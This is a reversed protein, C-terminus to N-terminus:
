VNESSDSKVFAYLRNSTILCLLVLLAGALVDIVYHYRLYVTAIILLIGVFLVARRVKLRYRYAMFIAIMTMM